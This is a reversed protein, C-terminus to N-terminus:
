FFQVILYVHLFLIMIINNDNNNFRRPPEGGDVALITLRYKTSMTEVDFMREVNVSGTVNDINFNGGQM